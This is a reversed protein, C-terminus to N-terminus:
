RVLKGSDGVSWTGKVNVYLITRIIERNEKPKYKLDVLKWDALGKYMMSLQADTPGAFNSGRFKRLMSKNKGYNRIFVPLLGKSLSDSKIFEEVYDQPNYSEDVTIWEYEETEPQSKQSSRSRFYFYGLLILADIVVFIIIIKVVKNM